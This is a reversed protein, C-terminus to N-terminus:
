WSSPMALAFMNGKLPHVVPVQDIKFPFFHDVGKIHPHSIEDNNPTRPSGTSMPSSSSSLSSPPTDPTSSGAWSASSPSSTRSTSPSSSECQPSQSKSPSKGFGPVPSTTSNPEPVPTNSTSAAAKAARRSVMENPYNPYEERDVGFDRLLASEFKSLIENDVNIEWDLYGCMEREMQNIERLTFTAQAVVTWSKNSYTDDCIVKSAIMFASIFLRHGSSGRATPFRAKLRQLLVLAASTVASHLKTRHLAYAIFFPLKGHIPSVSTGSSPPNEPCTFLHTIFRACIRATKEHGYFPDRPQSNQPTQLPHPIAKSSFPSVYSLLICIVTRDHGPPESPCLLRFRPSKDGPCKRPLPLVLPWTRFLFTITSLIIASLIYAPVFFKKDTLDFRCLPLTATPLQHYICWLM